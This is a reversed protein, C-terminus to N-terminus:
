YKTPGLSITQSLLIYQELGYKEKNKGNSFIITRNQQHRQLLKKSLAQCMIVLLHEKGKTSSASQTEITTNFAKM